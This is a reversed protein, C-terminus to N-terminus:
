VDGPRPGNKREESDYPMKRLRHIKANAFYGYVSGETKLARFTEYLDSIRGCANGDDAYWKHIANAKSMKQIQPLIAVGSTCMALPDGQTTGEESWLTTGNLYLPSPSSYSNKKANFLAPCNIKLNKLAIKRNFLNFANTADILFVAENKDFNTRRSHFAHEICCRQGM